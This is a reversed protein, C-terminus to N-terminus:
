SLTAQIHIEYLYSYGPTEWGLRSWSKSGRKVNHLCYQTWGIYEQDLGHAQRLFLLETHFVILYAGLTFDMAVM